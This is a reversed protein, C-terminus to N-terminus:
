EEKDETTKIQKKLEQNEYSLDLIMNAYDKEKATKVDGLVRYLILEMDASSLNRQAQIEAIYRLITDHTLDMVITKNM